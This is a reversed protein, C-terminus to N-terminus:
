NVMKNFNIQNISNNHGYFTQVCLNSRIDWLSITKDASATAFYNCYPQWKISNISDVHGRFTFRCEVMNLDWLKATHDMSSSVLFDGILFGFFFFFCNVLSIFIVHGCLSLIRICLLLVALMLLIGYKLLDMGLLLLM